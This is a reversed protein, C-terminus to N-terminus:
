DTHSIPLVLRSHAWPLYRSIIGTSIVPQSYVQIIIDLCYTSANQADNNYEFADPSFPSFTITLNYTSTSFDSASYSYIRVYYYGPVIDTYISESSGYGNSDASAKQSISNPGYLRVVPNLPSPVNSVSVTLTGYQSFTLNFWDNDNSPFITPYHSGPSINTANAADNNYEYTDPSVSTYTVTLNYAQANYNNNGYDYIRIIYFGPVCDFYVYENEGESYTNAYARQLTTSNPGYVYIVINIASSVNKVGVYLTGQSPASVNFYDTDGAPYITPYISGFSITSASDADNNPEYSDPNRTAAKANDSSACLIGTILFILFFFWVSLILEDISAKKNKGNNNM